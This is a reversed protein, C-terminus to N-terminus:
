KDPKKPDEPTSRPESLGTSVAVPWSAQGVAPPENAVKKPATEAVPAPTPQGILGAAIDRRLDLFAKHARHFIRHLRAEYRSRLSEARSEDALGKFAVGMQIGIDFKALKQELQELKCDMEYDVLAVEITKLRRIRWKAGIIEELLDREIPNAPQYFATYEDVMKQFLTPDECALLMSHRATFGHKLSNRSSIARTEATKPGKSRAGNARATDSQLQSTM